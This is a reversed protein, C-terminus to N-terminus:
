VCQRAVDNGKEIRTQQDEDRYISMRTSSRFLNISSRAELVAAAGIVAYSGSIAGPWLMSWANGLLGGLM